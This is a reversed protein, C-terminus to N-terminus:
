IIRIKNSFCNDLEDQKVRFATGHDHTSGDPYQGIRIDIYIKGEELLKSFDEFSFGKLLYAENFYFEEFEGSGKYDALVYMLQPLKREFVEKLHNREWYAVVGQKNHVLNIKTLDHKIIFGPHGRLSNYNSGSITTHLIPRNHSNPTIYGFWRLLKSNISTPQPTKTFLTLMSITPKRTAKLEINGCADPGPINNENIGLLDELTKGIGTNGRRHTKVWGLEKIEKLKLVFENYDRM